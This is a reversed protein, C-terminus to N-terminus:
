ALDLDGIGRLPGPPSLSCTFGTPTYGTPTDINLFPFTFGKHTDLRRTLGTPTYARHTYVNLCPWESVCFPRESVCFPRESVYCPCAHLRTPICRGLPRSSTCVRPGKRRAQPSVALFVASQTQFFQHFVRLTYFVHFVCIEGVYKVSVHQHHTQAM